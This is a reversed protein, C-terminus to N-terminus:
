STLAAARFDAIATQLAPETIEVVAWKRQTASGLDAMLEGLQKLRSIKPRTKRPL